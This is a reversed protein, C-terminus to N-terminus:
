GGEGTNRNFTNFIKREAVMTLQLVIVQISAIKQSLKESTAKKAELRAVTRAAELRQLLKDLLDRAKYKSEFPKNEPDVIECLEDAEQIKEECENILADTEDSNVMMMGKSKAADAIDAFEM